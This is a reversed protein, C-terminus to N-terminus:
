RRRGPRKRKEGKRLLAAPDAPLNPPPLRRAREGGPFASEAESLRADAAAVAEAWQRAFVPDRRRRKYFMNAHGVIKLAARANGSRRLLRLFRNRIRRAGLGRAEAAERPAVKCAGM